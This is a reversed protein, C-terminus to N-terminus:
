YQAGFSNPDIYQPAEPAPAVEFGGMAAGAPWNGAAAAADLGM